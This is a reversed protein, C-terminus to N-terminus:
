LARLVQWLWQLSWCTKFLAESHFSQEFHFLFLSKHKGSKLFLRFCFFVSLVFIFEKFFLWNKPPCRNTSNVSLRIRMILLNSINISSSWNKATFGDPSWLPLLFLLVYSWIYLTISPITSTLNPLRSPHLMLTM